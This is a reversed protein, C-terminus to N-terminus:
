GNLSSSIQNQLQAKQEANFEAQSYIKPEQRESLFMVHDMEAAQDLDYTVFFILKESCLGKIARQMVKRAVRSDLSSLTGDILIMDASKCYLARALSIRSKQGGSLSQGMEGLKTKDGNPMSAVDENLCCAWLIKEYWDPEYDLGFLINSRVTGTVILPDQEALSIQTGPKIKITGELIPMEQLISMLLSTKGSGVKGIVAVSQGKEFKFSIGKLVIQDEDTPLVENTKLKSIDVSPASWSTTVQNFSVLETPDQATPLPWQMRSNKKELSAQLKVGNAFPGTIVEEVRQNFVSLSYLAEIAYNSYLISFNFIYGLLALTSFVKGLELQDKDIMLFVLASIIVGANFYIASCINKIDCYRSFSKLELRREEDIRQSYLAEL